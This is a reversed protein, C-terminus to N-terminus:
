DTLDQSCEGHQGSSTFTYGCSFECELRMCIYGIQESSPLSPFGELPDGQSATADEACMGDWVKKLCVNVGSCPQVEVVSDDAGLRYVGECGARDCHRTGREMITLAAVRPDEFGPLDTRSAWYVVEKACIPNDGSRDNRPLQANRFGHLLRRRVRVLVEQSEPTNSNM